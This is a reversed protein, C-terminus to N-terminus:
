KNCNRSFQLCMKLIFIFACSVNYQSCKCLCLQKTKAMLLHENTTDGIIYYFAKLIMKSIFQCHKKNNSNKKPKKQALTNKLVLSLNIAYM